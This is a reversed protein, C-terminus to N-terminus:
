RVCAPKSVKKTASRISVWSTRTGAQCRDRANSRPSRRAPLESVRCLTIRLVLSGAPGWRILTWRGPGISPQDPLLDAARDRNPSRDRPPVSHDGPRPQRVSQRGCPGQRSTETAPLRLHGTQVAAALGENRLLLEAAPDDRHYGVATCVMAWYKQETPCGDNNSAPWARTFTVKSRRTLKAPTRASVRGSGPSNAM